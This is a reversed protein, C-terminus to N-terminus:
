AGSPANSGIPSWSVFPGRSAAEGDAQEVHAVDDGHVEPRERQESAAGFSQAGGGLIDGVEFDVRELGAVGEALDPGRFAGARGNRGQPLDRKKAILSPRRRKKEILQLM